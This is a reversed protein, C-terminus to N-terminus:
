SKSDCMAVFIQQSYGKRGLYCLCKTFVSVFIVYCLQYFIFFVPLFTRAVCLGLHYGVSITSFLTSTPEGWENHDGEQLMSSSSSLEDCKAIIM